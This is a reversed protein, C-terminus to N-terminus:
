TLMRSLMTVPIGRYRHMRTPIPMVYRMQSLFSKRFVELSEMLKLTTEESHCAHQNQLAANGGQVAQHLNDGAAKCRPQVAAMTRPRPAAEETRDGAKGVGGHANHEGKTASSETGWAM